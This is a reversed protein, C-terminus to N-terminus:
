PHHRHSLESRCGMDRDVRVRQRVVCALHQRADGAARPQHRDNLGVGVAVAEHGGCLDEDLRACAPQADAGDGLAHRQAGGPDGRGDEDEHGRRRTLARRQDLVREGRGDGARAVYAPQVLGGLRDPPGRLRLHEHVGAQRAHGGVLGGDVHDVGRGADADGDGAEICVVARGARARQGVAEIQEARADRRAHEARESLVQAHGGVAALQHAAVRQPEQPTVLDAVTLAAEHGEEADAIITRRPVAFRDKIERTEDIILKM